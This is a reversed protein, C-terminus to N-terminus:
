FKSRPVAHCAFANDKPVYSTIAELKTKLEHLTHISVVLNKETATLAKSASLHADVYFEIASIANQLKLIDNVDWTNPKKINVAEM